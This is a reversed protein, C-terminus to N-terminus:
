IGLRMSRAGVKALSVGSLITRSTYKSHRYNSPHIILHTLVALTAQSTPPVLTCAAHLPVLAVQVTPPTTPHCVNKRRSFSIVLTIHRLTFPMQSVLSALSESHILTLISWTFIPSPFLTVETSGPLMGESANLRAGSAEQIEKIKAGGKGIVSGMRSNPIMFKITM